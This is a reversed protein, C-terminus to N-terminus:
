NATKKESSARGQIAKVTLAAQEKVRQSVSKPVVHQEIIPVDDLTGILALGRLAEWVSEEDSALTLLLDGRNVRAGSHTLLSEVTGPLPSRVESVANGEQIRALLTGRSVNAGVRLTSTLTGGSPSQLQYPRFITLLESRGSPDGFRVLALAANRRVIPEPDNVLKLLTQHFENSKSDSGMLWALTLRLEAESSAALKVLQPYWQKVAPDRKDIRQQIQALAHQVKRPHQEDALYTSIEQDNLERGFWTFYWTLFAGVVFLGAVLLLPWTSRFRSRPVTITVSPNRGNSEM